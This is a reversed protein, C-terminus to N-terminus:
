TGTEISSYAAAAASCPTGPSTMSISVEIEEAFDGVAAVGV